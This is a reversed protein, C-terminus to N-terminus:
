WRLVQTHRVRRGRQAPRASSTREPTFVMGAGEGGLGLNGGEFPIDAVVLTTCCANRLDLLLDARDIDQDVIGADAKVAEQVLHLRLVPVLDDIDIQGGTVVHAM